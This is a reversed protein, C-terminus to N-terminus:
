LINLCPLILILYGIPGFYPGQCVVVRRANIISDGPQGANHVPDSQFTVVIETGTRDHSASMCLRADIQRVDLLRAFRVAIRAILVNAQITESADDILSPSRRRGLDISILVAVIAIRIPQKFVVTQRASESPCDHLM